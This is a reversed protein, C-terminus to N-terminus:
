IRVDGEKGGPATEGSGDKGGAKGGGGLSPPLELDPLKISAPKGGGSKNGKSASAPLASSIKPLKEGKLVRQMEELNLVEYEVLANAILELEKRKATLLKFVRQRAEDVIRRVEAEIKQKTESSLRNYRSDLEVDGLLDSFGM